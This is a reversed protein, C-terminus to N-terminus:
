PCIGEMGSNISKEVVELLSVASMLSVEGDALMLVKTIGLDEREGEELVASYPVVALVTDVWVAMDAVRSDLVVVKGDPRLGGRGLLAPLDVVPLPRGHSNIAGAIFSPAGPVPFIEPPELVETTEKLDLAFREDGLAFLLIREEQDTM